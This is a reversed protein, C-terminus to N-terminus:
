FEEGSTWIHPRWSMTEWTRGSCLNENHEGALIHILDPGPESVVVYM